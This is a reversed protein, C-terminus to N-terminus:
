LTKNKKFLFTCEFKSQLREEVGFIGTNMDSIGGYGQYVGELSAKNYIGGGQAHTTNLKGTMPKLHKTNKSIVSSQYSPPQRPEIFTEVPQQIMVNSPYNMMQRTDQILPPKQEIIESHVSPEQQFPEMIQPTQLFNTM